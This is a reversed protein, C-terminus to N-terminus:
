RSWSYYLDASGQLGSVVEMWLHRLLDLRVTLSNVPEYLGVGYSLYVRDSLQGGIVARTRSDKGELGLSLGKLLESSQMYGSTAALALALASTDASRDIGRGGLAYAMVEAEPLPPQSYFDLTPQALTGGVKIGVTVQDQTIYRELNIDLQPNDPVGVFALQGRSVDFRPGLLEVRGSLISIVGQVQLPKRSPRRLQLEGGLRGSIGDGSIGVRDSIRVMLDIEVPASPAEQQPEGTSDLLVVDDSVEVASVPLSELVIMGKSVDVVGSLVIKETTIDITIDESAVVVTDPPYLFNKEDGSVALHIRAGELWSLEGRVQSRGEHVFLAGQIKARDGVFDAALSINDFRTPNGVLSAEGDRLAISGTIRPAGIKGEFELEGQLYGQLKSLGPAFAEVQSLDFDALALTGSLSGDMAAPMTLDLLLRDAGNRKLRGTMRGKASDGRYDLALGDWDLRASEGGLLQEELHGPGLQLSAVLQQLELESWRADLRAELEGQADVDTPLLDTLYNLDAMLNASLHGSNGLMVEDFCLEASAQTWCHNDIALRHLDERYDIKVPEATEWVGREIGLRAPQLVGQWNGARLAGNVSVRAEIDGSANFQLVHSEPTGRLALTLGELNRAGFLTEAADIEFAFRPMDGYHYHGSFELSRSRSQGVELQWADGDLLVNGEDQDWRLTAALNGDAGKLWQEFGLAVINLQPNGGASQRFTLRSGNVELELASGQFDLSQDLRLEGRARAPFGNVVGELDIKGVDLAWREEVFQGGVQLSGQLAGELLPHLPPLKLNQLNLSLDWSLTDLFELRGSASVSQEPTDQALSLRNILLEGGRHEGLMELSVGEYSYGDVTAQAALAQREASGKVQLSWNEAVRIAPFDELGPLKSLSLAGGTEPCGGGVADLALPIGPALLDLTGSLTFPAAACLRAEVFLERLNGNLGVAGSSHHLMSWLPPTGIKFRSKMDLAYPHEFTMTGDFFASGWDGYSLQGGTLHLQTHRWQVGVRLTDYTNRVGYIDWVSDHLTLQDVLLNVPLDVTPLPSVGSEGVEIEPEPISLRSRHAELSPVQVTDGDLRVQGSIRESRLEGGTWHTHLEAVSLADTSVSVPLPWFPWEEDEEMDEVQVPIEIELYTAAVEYLCVEARWLCEKKLSVRIDRLSITAEDTVVRLRRLVLSDALSGSAYEIDLGTTENLLNVVTRAGIASFALAWLATPVLVILLLLFVLLRRLNM